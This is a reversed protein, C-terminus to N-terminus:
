DPFVFDIERLDYHSSRMGLSEYTLKATHNEWDVYLRIGCVDPTSRASQHVWGHMTRYVGKRRWQPQVYVSQVWWFDANRWDSWEYTVLLSGVVEGQAEAVLYFGKEPSQFVAETGRTLREVDLSKGEIELAMAANLTVLHELDSPAAKRVTIGHTDAM